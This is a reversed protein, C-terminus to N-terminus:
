SLMTQQCVLSLPDNDILLRTCHPNEAPPFSIYDTGNNGRGYGIGDGGGDGDDSGCGYGITDDGFGGGFGDYDNGTGNEYMM